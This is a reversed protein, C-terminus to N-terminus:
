KSNTFDNLDVYETKSQKIIGDFKSEITDSAEESNENSQSLGIQNLGSPRFSFEENQNQRSDFEQIRDLIVKPM